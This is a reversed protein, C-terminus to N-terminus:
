RKVLNSSQVTEKHETATDTENAMMQVLLTQTCREVTVRCVIDKDVHCVNRLRTDGHLHVLHNQTGIKKM